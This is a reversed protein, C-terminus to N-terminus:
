PQKTTTLGVMTMLIGCIDLEPNIDEKIDAISRLLLELGKADLYKPTVPIIASNAAALANITLIDITPSADMLCYDYLHKVKAGKKSIINSIVTAITVSLQDPKKVGMSATLSHQSDTDICLVKKGKRRCIVKDYYDGGLEKKRLSNKKM